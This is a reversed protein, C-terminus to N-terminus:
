PKPIERMRDALRRFEAAVNADTAWDPHKDFYAAAGILESALGSLARHYDDWTLPRAATAEATPQLPHGSPDFPAM